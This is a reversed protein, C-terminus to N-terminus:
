FTLEHLSLKVISTLWGLKRTKIVRKMRRRKVSLFPADKQIAIRSLSLHFSTIHCTCALLNCLLFNGTPLSYDFTSTMFSCYHLENMCLFTIILWHTPQRQARTYLRGYPEWDWKSRSRQYIIAMLAYLLSILNELIRTRITWTRILLPLARFEIVALISKQTRASASMKSLKNERSPACLLMIVINPPQRGM